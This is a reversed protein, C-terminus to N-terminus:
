GDSSPGAQPAQVCGRQAVSNRKETARSRESAQWWRPWAHSSSFAACACCWGTGRKWTRCGCATAMGDLLQWQRRLMHFRLSQLADRQGLDDAAGGIARALDRQCDVSVHLGINTSLCQVFSRGTFRCRPCVIQEGSCRTRSENVCCADQMHLTELTMAVFHSTLSSETRHALAPQTVCSVVVVVGVANGVVFESCELFHEHWGSAHTVHKKSSSYAKRM